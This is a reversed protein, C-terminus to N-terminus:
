AAYDTKLVNQIISRVELAIRRALEVPVANGIQKAVQFNSGVFNFDDPFTQLRAGERVTLPRNAEPHLYCGKEPKLFQTRITLAPADWSLRGMLDTAGGSSPNRNKWCELQLHDPLNKRNGRPPIHSYRELALPGSKKVDHRNLNTPQLPLDGIADRVTRWKPLNSFLTEGSQHTPQPLRPSGIRSGVIFTRRRRQPVGYDAANLIDAVTTYGLREAEKVIGDYASDKLLEPVNEIVFVYPKSMEVCRLYERWLENEPRELKAQRGLRSFGQCPPGGIVVEAEPFENINRIDGCIAHEGFNAMYTSVSPSDNDAAFVPLFGAQKFGLSM